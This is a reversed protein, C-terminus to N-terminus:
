CNKSLVVLIIVTLPNKQKFSIRPKFFNHLCHSYSQNNGCIVKNHILQLHEGQM